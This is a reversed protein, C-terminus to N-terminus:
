FCRCLSEVDPQHQAFFDTGNCSCDGFNDAHEFFYRESDSVDAFHNWMRSISLSFIRAMAAATVLI